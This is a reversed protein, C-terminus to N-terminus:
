IWFGKIQFLTKLYEKSSVLFKQSVPKSINGCFIILFTRFNPICIENSIRLIKLFSINSKKRASINEEEALSGSILVFLLTLTKWTMTRSFSYFYIYFDYDKSGKHSCARDLRALTVLDRFNM